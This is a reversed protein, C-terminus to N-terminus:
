RGLEYLRLKKYLAAESIKLKAALAARTLDPHHNLAERLWKKEERALLVPLGQELAARNTQPSESEVRAGSTTTDLLRQIDEPTVADQPQDMALRVSLHELHRVNGPWAFDLNKLFEVAEGSLEIWRGAEHQRLCHGENGVAQNVPVLDSCPRGVAHGPSFSGEVHTGEPQHLYQRPTSPKLLCPEDEFLHEGVGVM